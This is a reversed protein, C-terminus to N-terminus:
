LASGRAYEGEGQLVPLPMCFPALPWWPRHAAWLLLTSMLWHAALPALGQPAANCRMRPLSAHCGAPEVQGVTM